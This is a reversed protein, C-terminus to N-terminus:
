PQCHSKMVLVTTERGMAMDPKKKRGSKGSIVLAQYKVGSSIARALFRM